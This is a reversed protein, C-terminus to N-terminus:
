SLVKLKGQITQLKGTFFGMLEKVIELGEKVTIIKNPLDLKKAILVILREIFQIYKGWLNFIPSLWSLAENCFKESNQLSIYFNHAWQSINKLIEIRHSM